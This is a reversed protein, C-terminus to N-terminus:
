NPALGEILDPISQRYVCEYSTIQHYLPILKSSCSPVSGDWLGSSNCTRTLTDSTSYGAMCNYTVVGGYCVSSVSMAM